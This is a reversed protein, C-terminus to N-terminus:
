IGDMEATDRLCSLRSAVDRAQDAVAERLTDLWRCQLEVAALFDADADSQVSDKRRDLHTRVDRMSERLTVHRRLHDCYLPVTM